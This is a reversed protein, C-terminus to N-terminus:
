KIIKNRQDNRKNSGSLPINWRKINNPGNAFERIYKYWLDKYKPDKTKEWLNAVDDIKKLTVMNKREGNLLKVLTKLKLILLQVM